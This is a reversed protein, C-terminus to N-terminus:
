GDSCLTPGVEVLKDINVAPLFARLETARNRVSEVPESLLSLEAALMKACDAHLSPTMLTGLTSRVSVAINVATCM